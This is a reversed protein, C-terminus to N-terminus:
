LFSYSLLPNYEFIGFRFLWYPTWSIMFVLTVIFFTLVLKFPKKLNKIQTKNHNASRKTVLNSKPVKSTSPENCFSTSMDNGSTLQPVELRNTKIQSIGGSLNHENKVTNASNSPNDILSSWNSYHAVSVRNGIKNSKYNQIVLRRMLIVYAIILIFTYGFFCFLSTLGTLMSMFSFSFDLYCTNIYMDFYKLTAPDRSSNIGSIFLVPIVLIFQVTFMVAFVLKHKRTSLVINPVCIAIYREVAVLVLMMVSSSLVFHRIFEMIKCIAENQILSLEFLVAYPIMVCALLDVLALVKVVIGTKRVTGKIPYKLLIVANGIIGVICM